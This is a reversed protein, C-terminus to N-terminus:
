PGLRIYIYIDNVMISVGMQPHGKHAMSICRWHPDANAALSGLLVFTTQILKLLM